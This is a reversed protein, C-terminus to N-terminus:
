SNNKVLFIDGLYGTYAKSNKYELLFNIPYLKIHEDDANFEPVKIFYQYCRNLLNVMQDYYGTQNWAKPNFEMFIPISNNMLLNQAGLLVQAEFGETDIWIYKIQNAPISTKSIYDDLRIIRIKETPLGASDPIITNHGPNAPSIHLIQESEENGLGYNELIADNTM